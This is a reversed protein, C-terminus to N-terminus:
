PSPREILCDGGIWEGGNGVCAEIQEAKTLDSIALGAGVVVFLVSWAFAGPWHLYSNYGTSM